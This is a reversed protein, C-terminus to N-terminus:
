KALENNVPDPELNSILDSDFKKEIVVRRAFKKKANAYKMNCTKKKHIKQFNGELAEVYHTVREKEKCEKLLDMWENKKTHNKTERALVDQLGNTANSSEANGDEDGGDGQANTMNIVKSIDKNLKCENIRKDYEDLDPRNMNCFEVFKEIREVIDIPVMKFNLFMGNRNQTFGIDTRTKIIDALMKYIETHETETLMSIKDILAKRRRTSLQTNSTM